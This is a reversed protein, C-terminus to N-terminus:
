RWVPRGQHSLLRVLPRQERVILRAQHPRQDPHVPPLARDLGSRERRHRCGGLVSLTLSVQILRADSRASM